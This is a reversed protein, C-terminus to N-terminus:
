FLIHPLKLGIVKKLVGVMSAFKIGSNSKLFPANIMITTKPKTIAPNTPATHNIIFWFGLFYCYNKKTRKLLGGKAKFTLPPKKNLHNPINLLHMVVFLHLSFIAFFIESSISFFM